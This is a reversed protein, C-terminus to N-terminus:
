AQELEDAYFYLYRGNERYLDRAPDDDITVAYCDRGEVDVLVKEVTALKGVLFMDQADTRRAGPRLRVRAGALVKNPPHPDRVAGHLRVMAEISTHEVRELLAAARPDTARVQRKEEDTLTLTRLTLLEDIETADYFDGQSEPAIQPRDSLIFPAALVVEDHPQGVLVPHLSTRPWDLVAALAWDPPETVSLFRGGHAALLLHTGLLAASLAQDRPARAESWDTTNEITVRLRGLPRPAVLEEIGLHIAGSLARTERVIRGVTKGDEELVQVETGGELSFSRITPPGEAIPAQLEVEEVEAEDWTVHLKGAAELSEVRAFGDPAAPDAREVRRRRLRLFRLKGEVVAGPRPEVLCCTDLSWPDTGSAEAYSRPAAVGFQWRARNKPASARYPYLVYGEFLVADAVARAHEFSM